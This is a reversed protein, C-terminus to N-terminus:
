KMKKLFEKEVAGLAAKEDLTNRYKDDFWYFKIERLFTCYQVNRKLLVEYVFPSNFCGDEYPLRLIGWLEANFHIIDYDFSGDDSLVKVWDYFHWLIMQCFKCNDNPFYVNAIDMLFYRVYKQYGQWISDGLLLVNKM